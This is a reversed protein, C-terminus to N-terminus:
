SNSNHTTKVMLTFTDPDLQADQIAKFITASDFTYKVDAAKFAENLGALINAVTLELDVEIYFRNGGAIFQAQELTLVQM